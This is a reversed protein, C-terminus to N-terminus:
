SQREEEVCLVEDDLQEPTFNKAPGLYIEDAYSWACEFEDDLLALAEEKTEARVTWVYKTAFVRAIQFKKFKM